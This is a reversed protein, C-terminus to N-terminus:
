VLLVFNATSSIPYERAEAVPGETVNKPPPSTPGEPRGGWGWGGGKPPTATPHQWLRSSARIRQGQEDRAETNKCGSGGQDEEAM